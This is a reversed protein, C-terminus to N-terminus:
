RGVQTLRNVRQTGAKRSIAWGAEASDQNSGFGLETALNNGNTSKMVLLYIDQNVERDWGTTWMHWKLVTFYTM